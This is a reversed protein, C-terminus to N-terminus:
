PGRRKRRAPVLLPLITHAISRDDEGTEGESAGKHEGREGRLRAAGGIHARRLQVLDLGCPDHRRGMAARHAMAVPAAVAAAARAIAVAATLLPSDGMSEWWLGGGKLSLSCDRM